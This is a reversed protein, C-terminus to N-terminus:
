EWAACKADKEKCECERKQAQKYEKGDFKLVLQWCHMEGDEEVKRPRVSLDKLGHSKTSMSEYREISPFTGVYHGCTGRAIYVSRNCSEGCHWGPKVFLDAIGDGDLDEDRVDLQVHKGFPRTADRKDGDPLPDVCEGPLAVKEVPPATAGGGGGGGGTNAPTTPGCGALMTLALVWPGSRNWGM